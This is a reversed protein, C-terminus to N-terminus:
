QLSFSKIEGTTKHNNLSYLGYFYESYDEPNYVLHYAYTYGDNAKYLISQGDKYFNSQYELFDLFHIKAASPLVSVLSHKIHAKKKGRLVTTYDAEFDERGLKIIVHTGEKSDKIFVDENKKTFDKLPTDSNWNSKIQTWNQKRSYQPDLNIQDIGYFHELSENIYNENESIDYCVSYSEQNQFCQPKLSLTKAGQNTEMVEQNFTVNAYLRQFSKYRNLSVIVSLAVLVLLPWRAIKDSDQLLYLMLFLAVIFGFVSSRPEFLPVALMSLLSLVIVGILMISTMSWKPEKGKFCLYLLAVSTYSLAYFGARKIFELIRFGFSEYNFGERALRATASPSFVMILGGILLILIAWVIKSNIEGTTKRNLYLVFVSAVFLSILANENASAVFPSTLLLTKYAEQQDLIKVLARLYILLPILTWSYNIAGTTWFYANGIDTHFLWLFCLVLVYVLPKKRDYLREPIVLKAILLFVITNVLDFFWSPLLLFFQILTHVLVRYHCTYFINIQSEIFDSFGTISETGVSGDAPMKMLFMYDDGPMYVNLVNLYFLFISFLTIAVGTGWKYIKHHDTSL